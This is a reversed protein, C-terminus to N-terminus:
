CQGTRAPNRLRPRGTRRGAGHGEPGFTGGFSNPSIQSSAPGLPRSCSISAVPPAAAGRHPWGSCAASIGPRGFEGLRM